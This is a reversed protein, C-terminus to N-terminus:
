LMRTVVYCCLAQGIHYPVMHYYFRIDQLLRNPEKCLPCHVCHVIMFVNSIRSPPHTIFCCFITHILSCHHKLSIRVWFIIMSYPKAILYTEAIAGLVLKPNNPFCAHAITLVVYIFQLLRGFFVFFAIMAPCSNPVVELKVNIEVFYRSIFIAFHALLNLNISNKLWNDLGPKLSVM